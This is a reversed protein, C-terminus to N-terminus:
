KLFKLKYLTSATLQEIDVMINLLAQSNRVVKEEAQVAELYEELLEIPDDTQDPTVSPFKAIRGNLGQYAEAYADVFGVLDEYFSGLAVHEAYSQSTLHLMHASTRVAFSEAIFVPCSM